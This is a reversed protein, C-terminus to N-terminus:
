NTKNQKKYLRKVWTELAVFFVRLLNPTNVTDENWAKIHALLGDNSFLKNAPLPAVFLLGGMNDLLLEPLELLLRWIFEFSSDSFLTLTESGSM